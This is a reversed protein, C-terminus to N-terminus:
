NRSCMTEATASAGVEWFDPMTMNEFDARTTGLERRHFIPERRKLEELVDKVASDDVPNHFFIPETNYERRAGRQCWPRM